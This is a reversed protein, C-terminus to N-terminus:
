INFSNFEIQLVVNYDYSSSILDLSYQHAVMDM